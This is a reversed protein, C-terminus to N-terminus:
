TWDIPIIIVFNDDKKAFKNEYGMAKFLVLKQRMTELNEKVYQANGDSFLTHLNDTFGDIIKGYKSELRAHLENIYEKYGNKIQEECQSIDYDVIEIFDNDM